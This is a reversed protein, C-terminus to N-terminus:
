PRNQRSKLGPRELLFDRQQENALSYNRVLFHIRNEAKSSSAASPQIPSPDIHYSPSTLDLIHVGVLPKRETQAANSGDEQGKLASSDRPTLLWRATQRQPEDNNKYQQLLKRVKNSIGEHRWLSGDQGPSRNDSCNLKEDPDRWKRYLAQFHDQVICLPRPDSSSLQTQLQFVCPSASSDQSFSLSCEDLVHLLCNPM